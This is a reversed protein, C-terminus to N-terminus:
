GKHVPEGYTVSLAAGLRRNPNRAKTAKPRAPMAKLVRVIKDAEPGWTFWEGRLHRGANTLIHHFEWEDSETGEAFVVLELEYPCGIQLQSMRRNATADKTYGLKIYNTGKAWVVYIM